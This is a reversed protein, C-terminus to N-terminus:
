YSEHVVYRGTVICPAGAPPAYEAYDSFDLEWMEKLDAMSLNCDGPAYEQPWCLVHTSLKDGIQDIMALVRKLAEAKSPPVLELAIVYWSDDAAWNDLRWFVEVTQYVSYPM